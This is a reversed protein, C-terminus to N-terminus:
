KKHRKIREHKQTQKRWDRKRQTKIITRGFTRPPAGPDTRFQSINRYFTQTDIKNQHLAEINDNLLKKSEPSTTHDYAESYALYAAHYQFNNTDDIQLKEPPAAKATEPQETM